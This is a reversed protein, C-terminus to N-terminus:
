LVENSLGDEILNDILWEIFEIIAPKPNAKEDLQYVISLHGEPNRTMEFYIVTASISDAWLTHKPDMSDYLVLVLNPDQLYQKCVEPIWNKKHTYIGKLRNRFFDSFKTNSTLITILFLGSFIDSLSSSNWDYQTAM